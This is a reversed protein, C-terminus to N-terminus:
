PQLGSVSAGPITRICCKEANAIRNQQFEDTGPFTPNDPYFEPPIPEGRTKKYLTRITRIQGLHGALHM